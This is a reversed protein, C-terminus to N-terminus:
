AIKNHSNVICLERKGFYFWNSNYEVPKLIRATRKSQKIYENGNLSFTSTVPLDKFQIYQKQM